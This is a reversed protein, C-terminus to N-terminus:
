QGCCRVASSCGIEHILSPGSVLVQPAHAGAVNENPSAFSQFNWKREGMVGKAHPIHQRFWGAPYSPLSAVEQRALKACQILTVYSLAQAPRLM